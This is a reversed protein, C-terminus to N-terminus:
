GLNDFTNKSTLTFRFHSIQASYSPNFNPLLNYTEQQLLPGTLHLFFIDKPISSLPQHTCTHSCTHIKLSSVAFALIDAPQINAAVAHDEFNKFNLHFPLLLYNQAISNYPHLKWAKQQRVQM